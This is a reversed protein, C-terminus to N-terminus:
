IQTVFLEKVFYWTIIGSVILKLLVGTLFGMLSGIGSRISSRNDKGSIMEGAVAGLFPGIIIGPPGFFLGVILGFTAGLTGARSGGFRKTGWIPVIYDLITVIVAAIGTYLLVQDFHDARWEEVFDTFRLLLLGVFSLPPGPIVPLICGALGILVLLSAFIVLIIDM